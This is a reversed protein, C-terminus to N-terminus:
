PPSPGSCAHPEPVPQSASSPKAQPVHLPKFVARMEACYSQVEQNAKVLDATPETAAILTTLGVTAAL